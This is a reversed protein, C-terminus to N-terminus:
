LKPPWIDVILSYAFYTEHQPREQGAAAVKQGM